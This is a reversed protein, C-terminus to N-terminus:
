RLRATLDVVRSAESLSTVGVLVHRIADEALGKFGAEIAYRTIDRRPAARAIMEDLEEDIRLVEFIGIRGKYGLFNCETCAGERYLRLAKPTNVGLLQREVKEPVYPQRCNSCLKRILRQSVIGIINGAMIEPKVGSGLLRTLAAIASSAQLTAVVQRGTLAARFVLDATDQDGLEGVLMVDADQRIM